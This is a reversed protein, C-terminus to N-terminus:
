GAGTPTPTPTGTGFTNKEGTTIALDGARIARGNKTLSVYAANVWGTQAQYTVQIWSGAGNRGLVPLQTGAPILGLSESTASPDRRFQLNAGNNIDIVTAITGPAAPPQVSTANGQIYGRTIETAVPIETPLAPHDHFTVSVFDASMWGFVASGNADYEVFYWVPSKPAGVVPTVIITTKQIVYVLGGSPVLALSEGGVNPTRRLQVNTGDNTTIKGILRNSVAIPTISSNTVEGPTNEPIQKLALLATFNDSPVHRGNITIDLYQAITWGTVKGGDPTQWEVFLWVDARSTAAITPTPVKVGTPVATGTGTVHGRVGTITVTSQSPVLALTRADTRPYERLKLNVGPNTIVTGINGPVATPPLATPQAPPPAVLTASPAAAIPASTPANAVPAANTAAPVNSGGAIPISGAQESLSTTAVIVQPATVDGVVILDTLTGGSLVTDAKVTVGAVNIQLSYAGSPVTQNATPTGASAAFNVDGISTTATGALTNILNVRAKAPDLTTVDDPYEALAFKGSTDGTLVITEAKNKAADLAAAGVEISKTAPDDGTNVVAIKAGGTPLPIHLTAAGFALAPVSLKGNIYVDLGKSDAAANAFRVFVDSATNPATPATLLLYSPKVSGGVTGLAILTNHTGAVLSLGSISILAGKVDGGAPVIAVDPASAPIDFAGYIQGYKLGQVLPSGDARLVDVAPADALAHVATLRTNGPAIPGLDQDYPTATPKDATGGIVVLVTPKDASLTVKTTLLPTGSPLAGTGAPQVLVTHEGQKVNLYRTANAYDLNRAALINDIFIDVAAGGPLAHVFRIKDAANDQATVHVAFGSLFLAALAVISAIRLKM